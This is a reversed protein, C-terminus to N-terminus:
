TQDRSQFSSIMPFQIPIDEYMCSTKHFTNINHFILYLIMTPLNPIDKSKKLHWIDFYHVISKLVDRMYKTISAHRDSIFTTISLGYTILYDMCLKFAMFEMAPSSGTQNRQLSSVCLHLLNQLSYNTLLAEAILITIIICKTRGVQVLDFHIIQAFTCCFITCACFKATESGDESIHFVLNM